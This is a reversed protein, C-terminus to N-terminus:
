SINKGEYVKLIVDLFGSSFGNGYVYRGDKGVCCKYNYSRYKNKGM